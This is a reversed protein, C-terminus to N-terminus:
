FCVFEGARIAVFSVDSLSTSLEGQSVFFVFDGESVIVLGVAKCFVKIFFAM